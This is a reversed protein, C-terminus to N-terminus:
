CLDFYLNICGIYTVICVTQFNYREVTDLAGLDQNWGGVAYLMDELVVLGVYARKTMMKPLELWEKTVPNYSEVLSLDTSMDSIGGALYILGSIVFLLALAVEFYLVAEDILM